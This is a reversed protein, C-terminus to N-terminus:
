PGAHGRAGHLAAVRQLHDAEPGAGSEPRASRYYYGIPKALEPDAGRQEEDRNIFDLYSWHRGQNWVDRGIVAELLAYASVRHYQLTQSVSFRWDPLASGLPVNRRGGTGDRWPILTGWNLQVGWPATTDASAPGCNVAAGTTHDTCGPLRTMWLNKTLGDRWTNGQGVWVLYGDNNVQFSSTSTGCDSAWPEPLKACDGAGKLTYYGYITGYREGQRVMLIAGGNQVSTAGINFPPVDLKSVVTRTRDYNFRMSWSLDRNRVVPVNVSLEWTKNNLTGANQWQSGFGTAAPTPVPLIQDKTDVQIPSTMDRRILAGFSLARDAMQHFRLVVTASTRLVREFSDHTVAASLLSNMIELLVPDYDTM